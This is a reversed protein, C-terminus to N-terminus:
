GPGRGALRVLFLTLAAARRGVGSTRRHSPVRGPLYYSLRSCCRGTTRKDMAWPLAPLVSADDIILDCRNVHPDVLVMALLLVCFRLRSGPALVTRGARHRSRPSCIPGTVGSWPVLVSSFRGYSQMQYPIPELVDAIQGVHTVADLIACSAPRFVGRGRQAPCAALAAGAVMRWERGCLLVFPLM